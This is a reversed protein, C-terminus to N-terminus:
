TNSKCSCTYTTHFPCVVVETSDSDDLTNALALAEDDSTIYTKWNYILVSKM